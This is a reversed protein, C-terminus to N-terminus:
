QGKGCYPCFQADAPIQKGCSMCYKVEGTAAPQAPASANNAQMVSAVSSAVSNMNMMAVAAGNPNNAADKIAQTLTANAMDKDKLAATKQLDQLAKVDEDDASLSNVGFSVVEIGRLKGWKESLTQNLSDAIEMSHAIIDTYRIGKEGSITAFVVQLATLLESKMQNIIEEKDFRAAKNGAVNQYFYLPNVIKFSYEGNCKIRIGMDINANQDVVRFPIPAPTGFMNGMIEKTNVYYVRQSKAAVGGYTFRGLMEKFTDKIGDLGSFVTPSLSTDFTYNGPEAAVEVIKGDEVVLACQGDAVVIGSGTTIVDDDSFLGGGKKVGKAMLTNNDLSDCVFYDKWTDALVGSAAGIASMILGM